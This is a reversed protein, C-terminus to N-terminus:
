YYSLTFLQAILQCQLNNRDQTEFTLYLLTINKVNVQKLNHLDVEEAKSSPPQLVLVVLCSDNCFKWELNEYSQCDCLPIPIYIDKEIILSLKVFEAVIQIYKDKITRPPDIIKLVHLYLISRSM